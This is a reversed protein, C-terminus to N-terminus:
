GGYNVEKAIYVTKGDAENDTEFYPVELVTVNKTMLKGATELTQSAFAKPVVSYEGNYTEHDGSSPSVSLSGSLGGVCSLRGSLTSCASISGRDSMIM